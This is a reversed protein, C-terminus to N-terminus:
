WHGRFFVLATAQDGALDARTFPSGDARKATFEPFPEGAAVPGTYAPLRTYSFVFWWQLGCLAAVFLFGIWRALRPRRRLSILALLVGVTALAPIYWPTDTRGAATLQVAYLAPGLLVCLVGAALALRGTAVTPPSATASM